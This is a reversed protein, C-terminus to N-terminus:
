RAKVTGPDLGDDHRGLFEAVRPRANLGLNSSRGVGDGRLVDLIRRAAVVRQEILDNQLHGAHRLIGITLEVDAALVVRQLIPEVADRQGFSDAHEPLREIRPQGGRNFQDRARQRRFVPNNSL